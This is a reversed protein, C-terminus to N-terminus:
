RTGTMRFSASASAASREVRRQEGREIRLVDMRDDGADTEGVGCRQRQVFPETKSWDTDEVRDAPLEVLEPIDGPELTWKLELAM